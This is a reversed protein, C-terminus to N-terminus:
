SALEEVSVDSLDDDDFGQVDGYTPQPQASRNAPFSQSRQGIGWAGPGTSEMSSDFPDDHPRQWVAGRERARGGGAPETPSPESADFSSLMELDSAGGGTKPSDAPAEVPAVMERHRSRESGTAASQVSAASSAAAAKKAAAQASGFRGLARMDEDEASQKDSAADGRAKFSRIDGGEEEYEGGEYEEEQIDESVARGGAPIGSATRSTSELHRQAAEELHHRITDRMFVVHELQADTCAEDVEARRRDLEDMVLGFQQDSMAEQRPNVEYTLMEKEVEQMFAEMHLTRAREVAGESLLASSRRGQLSPALSTFSYIEQFRELYEAWEEEAEQHELEVLSDFLRRMEIAMEPAGENGTDSPGLLPSSPEPEQASDIRGLAAPSSSGGTSSPPARTAIPPLPPQGSSPREDAPQDFSSNVRRQPTNASSTESPEIFDEVDEESTSTGLSVAVPRRQEEPQEALFGSTQRPKTDDAGLPQVMDAANGPDSSSSPEWGSTARHGPAHQAEMKLFGESASRKHGDKPSGPGAGMVQTRVPAPVALSQFPSDAGDDSYEEIEVESASEARPASTPPQQATPVSVRSAPALPPTGTSSGAPSDARLLGSSGVGPSGKFGSVDSSAAREFQEKQQKLKANKAALDDARDRSAKIEELLLDREAKLATVEHSLRQVEANADSSEDGGPRSSREAVQKLRTNEDMLDQLDSSLRRQEAELQEVKAKYRRLDVGGGRAVEAEQQADVLQRQVVALREQLSRKESKWRAPSEDDELDGIGSQRQLAAQLEQADQRSRTLKQEADELAEQLDKVDSKMTDNESQTASLQERTTKLDRELNRVQRELHLQGTMSGSQGFALPQQQQAAEERAEALQRQLSTTRQQFDTLQSQLRENQGQLERERNEAEQQQSRMLARQMATDEVAPRQLSSGVPTGQRSPYQAQSDPYEMPIGGDELDALQRTLAAITNQMHRRQEAMRDVEDQLQQVRNLTEPSDMYVVQPQQAQNPNQNEQGRQALLEMTRLSRRCQKLERKTASLSEKQERCKLRLAEVHAATQSYKGMYHDKEAGLAGQVHLLYEV